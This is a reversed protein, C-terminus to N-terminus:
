LINPNPLAKDQRSDLYFSIVSDLPHIFLEQTM